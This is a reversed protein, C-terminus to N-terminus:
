AQKTTGVRSPYAADTRKLRRDNKPDVRRPQRIFWGAVTRAVISERIKSEREPQAGEVVSSYVAGSFDDGPYIWSTTENQGGIRKTELLSAADPTGNEIGGGAGVYVELM